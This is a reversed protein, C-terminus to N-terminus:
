WRGFHALPHRTTDFWAPGAPPRAPAPMSAGMQTSRSAPAEPKQDFALRVSYRAFSGDLNVGM